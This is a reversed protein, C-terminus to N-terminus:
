ILDWLIKIPKQYTDPFKIAYQFPFPFLFTQMLLKHCAVLNWIIRGWILNHFYRQSFYKKSIEYCLLSMFWAASIYENRMKCVESNHNKKWYIGIDVSIHKNSAEPGRWVLVNDDHIPRHIECAQICMTKTHLCHCHFHCCVTKIITSSCIPLALLLFNGNM